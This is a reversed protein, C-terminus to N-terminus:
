KFCQYFTILNNFMELLEIALNHSYGFIKRLYTVLLFYNIKKKNYKIKM